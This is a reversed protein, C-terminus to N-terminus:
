GFMNLKDILFMRKYDFHSFIIHENSSDTPTEGVLLTLVFFFWVSVEYDTIKSRKQHLYRITSLDNNKTSSPRKISCNPNLVIGENFFHTLIVHDNLCILKGFNDFRFYDCETLVEQVSGLLGEIKYGQFLIIIRTGKLFESHIGISDVPLSQVFSTVTNGAGKNSSCFTRKEAM